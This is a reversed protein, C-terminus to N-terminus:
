RELYTSFKCSISDDKKAKEIMDFIIKDAQDGLNISEKGWILIQRIAEHQESVDSMYQLSELLISAKKQLEVSKFRISNSLDILYKERSSM